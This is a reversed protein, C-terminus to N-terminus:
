SLITSASINCLKCSNRCGSILRNRWRSKYRVFRVITRATIIVVFAVAITIVIVIIISFIIIIAFIVSISNAACKGSFSREYKGALLIM